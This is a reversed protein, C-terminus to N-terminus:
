LAGLLLQGSMTGSPQTGVPTSVSVPWLSCIVNTLSCSRPSSWLQCYAGLNGVVELALQASSYQLLSQFRWGPEERQCWLVDRLSGASVDPAKWESRSWCCETVEM